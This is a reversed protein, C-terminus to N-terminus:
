LVSPKWRSEGEGEVNHKFNERLKFREGQAEAMKAKVGKGLGYLMGKGKTEEVELAEM